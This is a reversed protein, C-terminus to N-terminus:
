PPLVIAFDPLYSDLVARRAYMRWRGDVRTLEDELTGCLHLHSRGQLDTRFIAFNTFVSAKRQDEVDVTV